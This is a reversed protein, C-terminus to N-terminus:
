NAVIAKRKSKIAKVRVPRNLKYEGEGCRDEDRGRQGERGEM